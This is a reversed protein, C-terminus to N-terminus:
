METPAKELRRFLNKKLNLFLINNMNRSNNLRDDGYTIQDKSTTSKGLM